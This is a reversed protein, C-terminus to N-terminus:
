KKNLRPRLIEEMGVKLPKLGIAEYFRMASPNCQWVNLTINYYGNAKAYEKVFNYLQSGIHKGRCQANVCLDDIYLTKIPMLHKSDTHDEEICFCYAEVVGNEDEYVFVPTHPNSIIELVEKPEYKTHGKIFIDPRGEAHVDNVQHLMKMLSDIDKIQAHRIM